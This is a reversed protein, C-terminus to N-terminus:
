KLESNDIIPKAKKAENNAFRLAGDFTLGSGFVYLPPGHESDKEEESMKHWRKRQEPDRILMVSGKVNECGSAQISFDASSFRWGKLIKM